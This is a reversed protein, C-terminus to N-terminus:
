FTLLPPLPSHPIRQASPALAAQSRGSQLRRSRVSRPGAADTQDIGEGQTAWTRTCMCVVRASCKHQKASTHLRQRDRRATATAAAAPDGRWACLPPKQRGDTQEAQSWYCDCLLCREDSGVCRYASLHPARMARCPPTIAHCHGGSNRRVVTGSRSSCRLTQHGNLGGRLDPDPPCDLSAFGSVIM